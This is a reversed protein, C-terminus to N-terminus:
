DLLALLRARNDAKRASRAVGCWLEGEVPACLRLESHGVRRVRRQLGPHQKMLAIVANTDLLYPM